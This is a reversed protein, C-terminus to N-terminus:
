EIQIEGDGSVNMYFTHSEGASFGNGYNKYTVVIYEGNVIGNTNSIEEGKVSQVTGSIVHLKVTIAEVKSDTINKVTIDYNVNGEWNAQPTVTYGGSEFILNDREKKYVGDGEGQSEIIEGNNLDDGLGQKQEEQENNQEDVPPQEGKITKEEEASVDNKGILNEQTSQDREPRDNETSAEEKQEGVEVTEEAAIRNEDRTQEKKGEGEAEGTAMALVLLLVAVALSCVGAILVIIGRNKRKM